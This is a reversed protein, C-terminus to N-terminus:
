RECREGVEDWRGGADLCRDIALWRRASPWWWLALACAIVFILIKLRLNV